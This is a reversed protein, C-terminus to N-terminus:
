SQKEKIKTKEPRRFIEKISFVGVLKKEKNVVHVYNITELEKMKEFLM